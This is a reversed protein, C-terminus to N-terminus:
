KSAELYLSEIEREPRDILLRSDRGSRFTEKKVNKFGIKELNMRFTEFDYIFLHGHSRFIRNVSIMPTDEKDDYPLRVSPDTKRAQYLDFYLEGDPVIIRVTGGPKLMRYFEKLNEFTKEYPIHELCHETFIGELSADPVPYPKSTIDWCADLGPRWEYDINFFEEKGFPGCGINLLVKDKVREKKIFSSKGRILNGVVRQVKAYSFISRDLSLNM